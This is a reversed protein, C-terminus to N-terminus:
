KKKAERRMRAELGPNPKSGSKGKAPQAEHRRLRNKAIEAASKKKTKNGLPSPKKSTVMGEVYPLRAVQDTLKSDPCQLLFRHRVGPRFQGDESAKVLREAVKQWDLIENVAETILGHLEGDYKKPSVALVAESKVVAHDVGALWDRSVTNGAAKLATGVYMRMNENLPHRTALKEMRTVIKERLAPYIATMKLMAVMEHFARVQAEAKLNDDLDRAGHLIGEVVDLRESLANEPDFFTVKHNALIGAYNIAGVKGDPYFIHLSEGDKVRVLAENYGDSVLTGGSVGSYLEQMGPRLKVGGALGYLVHALLYVSKEVDLRSLVPIHKNNSIPIEELKARRVVGVNNDVVEYLCGRPSVRHRGVYRSSSLMLAPTGLPVAPHNLALEIGESASGNVVFCNAPKKRDVELLHNPARNSSSAFASNKDMQM